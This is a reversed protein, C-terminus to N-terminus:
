SDSTTAAPAAGVVLDTTEGGLELSGDRVQLTTATVGFPLPGPAITLTFMQTVQQAVAAPLPDGDSGRVDRPIVRMTGDVAQLEAIVVPQYKTGDITMTGSIRAVSEPDLSRLTPDADKDTILGNIGNADINGFSLPTVQPFMRDLDDAGVRVSSEVSAARLGPVGSGILGTATVDHLNGRLQVNHLTGVELHDATLQISGYQGRAAQTLFPFGNIRVAPDDALGLRERLQRSVVSEAAAASAYDAALLVGVLVVVAIILRKV